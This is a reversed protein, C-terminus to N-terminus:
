GVLQFWLQNGRQEVGFLAGLPLDDGIVINRFGHHVGHQSDFVSSEELMTSHIVNAQSLGRPDVQSVLTM